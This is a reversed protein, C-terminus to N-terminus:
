HIKKVNKKFKWSAAFLYDMGRFHHRMELGFHFAYNLPIGLVDLHVFVERTGDTFRVQGIQGLWAGVLGIQSVDSFM